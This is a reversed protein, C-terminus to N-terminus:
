FSEPLGFAAVRDPTFNVVEVVRGGEVRLLTVAFARHVDTGPLRVYSAAGPQRNARVERLRMDLAPDHLAPAWGELITAIGGYWAPEAGDHGGAGPQHSVVADPALLAAIAEDDARELADIYRRVLTRDEGAPPIRATWDRADPGLRARLTARARQLASNAAPVTTDLAAACRDAPWGVVDRLVLVARQREPLHQLAAVFAVEVTERSAVTAAPDPERAAVQDLLEDPCPQLWPVTAAVPAALGDVVTGAALLRRRRRDRARRGLCANTAIRYLWTRM